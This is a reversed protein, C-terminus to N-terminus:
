RLIVLKKIRGRVTEGSFGGVTMVYLYVGNARLDGNDNQLNWELIEGSVEGSDFVQRGSLDFVEVRISQIGQGEAVFRAVGQDSMPYAHMQHVMLAEHNGEAVPASAPASSIPQGGIWLEILRLIEADSITQGCTGPVAEGMVWLQIALSIDADDVISPDGSNAAIAQTVTMCGGKGVTIPVELKLDGNELTVVATGVQQGVLHFEMAGSADPMSEPPDVTVVSPDGSTATVVGGLLRLGTDGAEITAELVAEEGVAIRLQQKNARIHAELGAPQVEIEAWGLEPLDQTEQAAIAQSCSAGTTDTIDATVIKDKYVAALTDGPQADFVEPAMGASRFVGSDRDVEQLFATWSVGIRTDVLQVTVEDISEPDLNESQDTVELSILEDMSYAERIQGFQDTFTLSIEAPAEGIITASAVADGYQATLTDGPQAALVGPDVGSSFFTSTDPGTEVLPVSISVGSREDALQVSVENVTEPCTNAEEDFVELFIQEELPYTDRPTEFRDTFMLSVSPVILIGPVLVPEATEGWPPDPPFIAVWYPSRGPPVGQNQIELKHRAAHLCWGGPCCLASGAPPAIRHRCAPPPPAGPPAPRCAAALSRVAVPVVIPTYFHFQAETLACPALPAAVKGGNNRIICTFTTWGDWPRKLFIPSQCSVSLIPKRILGWPWNCPNLYYDETEGFAFGDPPASGDWGEDGFEGPDIPSRTLTIRLWTPFPLVNGNGFAFWDSTIKQTTGPSVNVSMNKVPWEPEGRAGTGGWEGNQNLDVLVNVYRTVNPAGPAVTVAFRVTARAPIQDVSIFVSIGGDWGDGDVLNALGDPDTLLDDADQERSPPGAPADPFLPGLWEQSSDLHHAGTRGPVRTTGRGTADYLTPFNGVISFLPGPYMASTGDPADGYEAVPPTPQSWVLREEVQSGVLAITLLCAVLIAWRVRGKGEHQM